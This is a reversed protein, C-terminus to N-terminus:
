QDGQEDDRRLAAWGEVTRLEARDDHNCTITGVGINAGADVEAGEAVNTGPRLVAGPGVHVRDALTSGSVLSSDVTCCSGVTSDFVRANPGLVCGEGTRTDGMLFTMPEVVTDRGIEVRPGIWVLGPATMTVGALLHRENIRRQMVAAAEALQVRTNIGLTETADPAEVAVVPLGEARLVEIMDTLYYEGQANSNELRQLHAFLTQADFCYTSTNVETISHQEPTLDKDEVIGAIRGDEDSVIRGYGSPDALRTTLVAVAAGASERADILRALTEPTFLPCDGALVLLSGKFAGLVPAACMVAHGTGLQVDQRAFEVNATALLSEVTEAGSGTVVVVRKVGAARTAEVVHGILPVGLIRHAVKPLTSKMRTGEGAALILATASVKPGKM